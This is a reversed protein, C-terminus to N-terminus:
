TRLKNVGLLMVTLVLYVAVQAPGYPQDLIVAASFGLIFGIVNFVLAIFISAQWSTALKFALWAPIFVMAFATMLGVCATAVGMTIAVLLDFGLHWRFTKTENLQEYHPFLRARLLPKSLLRVILCGAGCLIGSIIADRSQVFYLQGEILAHGLSEGLATNAAVLFTLSWGAIIMFAYATNNTNTLHKIVAMIAGGIPGGVIVPVGLGFGILGSAASMQALGFAALWEDRLRLYLGLLPLFLSLFLGTLWPMYFLPDILTAM